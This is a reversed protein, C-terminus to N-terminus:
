YSVKQPEVPRPIPGAFENGWDKWYEAEADDIYQIREWDKGVTKGRVWYWDPKTPIKKTWEM